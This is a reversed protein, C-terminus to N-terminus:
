RTPSRRAATPRCATCCSRTQPPGAGVVDATSRTPGSRSAAARAGRGGPGDVGLHRHGGRRRGGCGGQPDSILTSRARRDRRGASRRGARHRIPSSARRPASGCTCGRPRAASCTPTAGHQQRRRRPLGADPRGAPGQTGPDDAPRGPDPVPPVRRDARQDGAGPVRPWRRSGANRSPAGSWRPWQRELVRATDAITEERGLQRHRRRRHDAPAGGLESIGVAFSLRTRTSTKDFM